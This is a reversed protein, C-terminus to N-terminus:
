SATKVSALRQLVQRALERALAKQVGSGERQKALVAQTDYSYTSNLSLSQLPLVERGRLEIAYDISYSVQYEEPTNRSPSVSVVSANAMDATIRIKAGVTENGSLVTTDALTAGSEILSRQLEQYFDSYRDVAEIQIPMVEPPLRVGARLQWGCGMM